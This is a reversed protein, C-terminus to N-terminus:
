NSYRITSEDACVRRPNCSIILKQVFLYPMAQLGIDM